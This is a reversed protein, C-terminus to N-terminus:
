FELLCKKLAFLLRRLNGVNVTDFFGFLVVVNSRDKARHAYPGIWIGSMVKPDMNGSQHRVRVSHCGGDTEFKTAGCVLLNCKTEAPM